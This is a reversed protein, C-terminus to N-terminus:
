TKATYWNNLWVTNINASTVASDSNILDGNRKAATFANEYTYSYKDAYARGYCNNYLDRVSANDFLGSFTKLSNACLSYFDDRMRYAYSCAKYAATSSSSGENVYKTYANQAYKQLVAAWEYNCGVIRASSKSLETTMRHNWTFHRYSDRLGGATAESPYKNKADQDASNALNKATNVATVGMGDEVCFYAVLEKNGIPVESGYTVPANDVAYYTQLIEEIHALKEASYNSPDAEFRRLSIEAVEDITKASLLEEDAPKIYGDTSTFEIGIDGISMSEASSEINVANANFALATTTICAMLMFSMSTKLIKM